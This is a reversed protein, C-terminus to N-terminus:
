FIPCAKGYYRKGRHFQSAGRNCKGKAFNTKWSIYIDSGYFDFWGTYSSFYDSGITLNMFRVAVGFRARSWEYLSLPISIEFRRKEYRPTFSIQTPRYISNKFVPTPHIFTFNYFWYGAPHLEFQISAATPLGISIKSADADQSHDFRSNIETSFSEINQPDFTNVGPWYTQANDFNFQYANDKLKVSGLDLLSIGIKYKYSSWGQECARKFRVLGNGDRKKQFVLGLDIAWGNGMFIGYDSNYENNSYDLPLAYGMEADMEEAAFTSDDYVIYHAYPINVFAGGMGQIKKVTIGFAWHEDSVQRFVNAYSFAFETWTLGATKFNRLEYYENHQPDFDIGEYVFKTTHYEMGRQSASGRASIKLGFGHNGLNLMVSPFEILTNANAKLMHQKDYTDKFIPAEDGFDAAPSTIEMFYLEKHPIYLNNNEAFAGITILNIDLWVKSDSILAPNIFTSNIGAYNSNVIGWMEQARSAQFFFLLFVTILVTKKM